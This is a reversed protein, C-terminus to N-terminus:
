SLFTHTPKIILLYLWGDGSCVRTDDCRWWVAMVCWWYWVVLVV